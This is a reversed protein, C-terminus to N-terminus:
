KPNFFNGKGSESIDTSKMVAAMADDCYPIMERFYHNTGNVEVSRMWDKGEEVVVGKSDIMKGGDILMTVVEVIKEVPTFYSDPFQQWAESDLLNTRVTGPCICNVRIRDNFYFAKAISRMFGVVAHKAGAYMPSFPSPYFGGCSATM